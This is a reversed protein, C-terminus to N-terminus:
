YRRRLLVYSYIIALDELSYRAFRADLRPLNLIQQESSETIYPDHKEIVFGSQELIPVWEPWVLRNHYEFSEFIWKHFSDSYQYYNFQNVSPDHCSFHDDHGIATYFWGEHKLMRRLAQLEPGLVPPPIHSLVCSGIMFDISNEPLFPEDIQQTICPVFHCAAYIEERSKLRLLPELKAQVTARDIDLAAAVRDAQELLYGLYNKIYVLKARDEVDFLYTKYDGVLYLAFADHHYWGTGVELVTGGPPVLTKGERTMKLSNFISPDRGRTRRNVWYGVGSYIHKGLPTYSLTKEALAWAYYKLM